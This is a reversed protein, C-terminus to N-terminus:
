KKKSSFLQKMVDKFKRKNKVSVDDVHDDREVSVEDPTNEMEASVWDGWSRRNLQSLKRKPDTTGSVNTLSHSLKDRKETSIKRTRSNLTNSPSSGPTESVGSDALSEQSIRSLSKKSGFLPSSEGSVISSNRSCISQRANDYSTRRRTLLSQQRRVWVDPSEHGSKEKTLSPDSLVKDKMKNEHEKLQYNSPFGLSVPRPRIPSAVANKRLCKRTPTSPPSCSKIADKDYDPKVNGNEDATDDQDRVATSQEICDQGNDLEKSPTDMEGLNEQKFPEDTSRRWKKSRRHWNRILSDAAMRFVNQRHFLFYFCLM